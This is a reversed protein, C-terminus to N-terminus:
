EDDPGDLEYCMGPTTGIDDDSSAFRLIHTYARSCADVQDVYDGAPFLALENLFAENWPAKVVFVNNAEWQAAFPIARDAKEGSEASFSVPYGALVNAFASKQSLGAQGPDQPISIQVLLGDAEAAARLRREVEFPSGRFRVVDEVFIRGRQDRCMKVGVTYAARRSTSAALDWGRVRIGIEPAADVYQINKVGFMGGERAVPRQQLQGAVAYSGGHSSLANEMQAVAHEPFREPWLLAGEEQRPDTFQYGPVDISCHRESEYRMPLILKEYEPQYKLVHGSLDSAHLRQMILVIASEDAKNLRTPLTETWWRLAEERMLESEARKVDHPDDVIIYDGRYGTLAGGTSTALRFGKHGEIVWYQKGAEDEKLSIPWRDTFWKSTVLDRCRTLDRTSLGKEYSASIFRQDPRGQPGLIWAPWLVSTVMSKSCGPPINILLRKIKGEAVAQLTDCLTKVAWGSVFRNSPELVHWARQVFKFFSERCEVQDLQVLAQEKNKLARKLLDQDIKSM